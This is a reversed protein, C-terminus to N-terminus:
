YLKIIYKVVYFPPMVQIDEQTTIENKDDTNDLISNDTTFKHSHKSPDTDELHSHDITHKLSSYYWKRNDKALTVGNKGDLQTIGSHSHTGGNDFNGSHNHIPLNEVKLKIHDYKTISNGNEDTEGRRNYYTLFNDHIKNSTYGKGFLFRGRLDPTRNEGNCEYWGTPIEVNATQIFPLITGLPFSAMDHLGIEPFSSKVNKNVTEKILKEIRLFELFEEETKGQNGPKSRWTNFENQNDSSFNEYSKNKIFLLFILIFYILIKNNM